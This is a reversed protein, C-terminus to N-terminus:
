FSNTVSITLGNSAPVNRCVGGVCIIGERQRGYGVAMRLTNKLYGVQALYYHFQEKADPNGYNYQDILAVFYNPSHTYEILGAAWSGQDQKSSMHQVEMRISNKKDVKYSAELVNIYAYIVGYGKLGQVVDKDYEIHMFTYAGKWKSNFKRSVEINRDEFYCKGAGFPKASYGYKEGVYSTDLGHIRSYNLTITTGYKGGLLTGKKITYAIEAQFGVEGLPQTAYPYFAPLMYTHQKGTAPLYGLTLDNVAATRDSRFSMNDIRKGTVLIGLGKTAYSANVLLGNGSKYIFKNDLSPDNIKYSYEGGLSLKKYQVNMRGAFASVNEPLIYVPDADVQYKSLFSGGLTIHLASAELKSFAENLMIEADAGRVLGSGYAFYARQRGFLAKLYVGKLPQYRLRVGDISNDIGLNREEYARLVLGNGFQEYFNGVTIDLDNAKYGLYRHMIGSGKYRPDFGALPPLYAEYRIGAYFEDRTYQLNLFSNSRIKEPINPAGIATDPRYYQADMQFNGHLEGPRFPLVSHNISGSIPAGEQAAATALGGVLALLLLGLKNRM